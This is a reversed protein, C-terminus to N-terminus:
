ICREDLRPAFPHIAVVTTDCTSVWLFHNHTRLSEVHLDNQDSQERPFARKYETRCSLEVQVSFGVKINRFVRYREDHIRM